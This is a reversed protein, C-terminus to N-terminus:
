RRFRRRMDMLSLAILGTALLWLTAPEPATTTTLALESSPGAPEGPADQGPAEFPGAAARSEAPKPIEPLDAPRGPQQVSLVSLFVAKPANEERVWDGHLAPPEVIARLAKGPEQKLEPASFRRPEAPGAALAEEGVTARPAAPQVAVPAEPGRNRVDSPAAVTLDSILLSADAFARPAGEDLWAFPFAREEAIERAAAESSPERSQQALGLGLAPYCGLSRCSVGAGADAFTRPSYRSTTVLRLSAPSAAPATSLLVVRAFQDASRSEGPLSVAEARSTTYTRPRGLVQAALRDGLRDDAASEQATPESPYTAQQLVAFSVAGASSVAVFSILGVQWGWRRM